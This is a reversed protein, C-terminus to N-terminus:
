ILPFVEDKIEYTDIYSIFSGTPRRWVYPLHLDPMTELYRIVMEDQNTVLAYQMPNLREEKYVNGSDRYVYSDVKLLKDIIKLDGAAKVYPLDCAYFYNLTEGELEQQAIQIEEKLIEIHDEYIRLYDDPNQKKTYDSMIIPDILTEFFQTQLKPTLNLLMLKTKTSLMIEKM